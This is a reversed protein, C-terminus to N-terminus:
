AMQARAKRFEGCIMEYAEIAVLRPDFPLKIRRSVPPPTSVLEADPHVAAKDVFFRRHLEEEVQRRAVKQLSEPLSHIPACCIGVFVMDDSGDATEPSMELLRTTLTGGASIHQGWRKPPLDGTEGFYVYTGSLIGYVFSDGKGGQITGCHTVLM